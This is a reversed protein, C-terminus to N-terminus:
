LLVVSPPGECTRQPGAARAASTAARGPGKIFLVHHRGGTVLQVEEGLNNDQKITRERPGSFRRNQVTAKSLALGGLRRRSAQKVSRSGRERGECNVCM